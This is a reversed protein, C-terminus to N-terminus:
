ISIHQVRARGPRDAALARGLLTRLAQRARHLSTKAASLSVGLLNAAEGTAFREIDCLLLMSRYTEPLREVCSRVKARMEPGLAQPGACLTALALYEDAEDLVREGDDSFRPLLRDISEEASVSRSGLRRLSENVVIGHLWASLREGRYSRELGDFAALFADHVALSAEEDSWLFCRAVVLMRAGYRRVLIERAQAERARLRAVLEAEAREEEDTSPHPIPPSPRPAVLMERLFASCGQLEAGRANLDRLLALGKSDAYGIGEVDIVLGTGAALFPECASRIEEIHDGVLHGEVALRTAAGPTCTIKFMGGIPLARAM